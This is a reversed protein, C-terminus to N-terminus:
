QEKKNKVENLAVVLQQLMNQLLSALGSIPAAITGVLQALLVDRNPLKALENIQKDKYIDGDLFYVKMKPKELKKSFEAIVKAPAIPDDLGFAIATPGELYDLLQTLGLQELSLRTLTNKVIKYEVSSKRLETRLDSIEEVNLGTFDTLLVSKANSIKDALEAVIKEKEPRSM